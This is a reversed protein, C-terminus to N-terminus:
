EAAPQELKKFLDALMNQRQGESVPRWGLSHLQLLNTPIGTVFRSPTMMALKGHRQRQKCRTIMLTKRARTIGVYFLRREEQIDEGLNKHPLIDEDLGMLVVSDFELGKSAHLTMLQIQNKEEEEDESDRLEMFNLFEYLSDRTPKGNKLLLKDVVQCFLQVLNWRKQFGLEDRSHSLLYDHFGIERLAELLHTGPTGDSLMRPALSNLFALFKDINEGTKPNVGAEQWRQAAKFFGSHTSKGFESIQEISTDGIGRPPTNLIRRFAVDNPKLSCRLYALIDKIEKRDFFATGGTISYPIQQKRLEIELYAGQMNSRYLVAIEKAPVRKGMLDRVERIVGDVELDDNEFVFLEPVDTANVGKSPILKKGHRTQNQQIVHNALTLIKESSRYNRELKVVKCPRYIKPFNLINAVQAGRWGYISQDDDGVVALNRHTKSIMDILKMQSKNTDQFEDVQIQRYSDQVESLIKENSNMLDIPRLILSDFDVVGLNELKKIYKPLLWETVIEYEDTSKAKFRNEERWQGMMSLLTDTDFAEKGSNKLDKLLDKIVANADNQDIIGFYKELGAEKHYKRLIGLGFSHFTGAWMGEGQSGLKKSVRHKLERAAKNTFTLVLMQHSKVHGSDILVGTRSVLTTTKGSGAGALILLPGDRHFAAECQEPNLNATWDIKSM